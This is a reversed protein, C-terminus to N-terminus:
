RNDRSGPPHQERRPRQPHHRRGSPGRHHHQRAAPLAACVALWREAGVVRSLVLLLLVFLLLHLLLLFM